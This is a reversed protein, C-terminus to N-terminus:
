RCKWADERGGTSVIVSDAIRGCISALVGLRWRLFPACEHMAEPDPSMASACETLGKMVRMLSRYRHGPDHRSTISGDRGTRYAYHNLGSAVTTGARTLLYPTWLEDEHIIGEAFRLGLGLLLRRRVMYCPAMPAYTAHEFMEKLFAAGTSYTGPTVPRGWYWMGGSPDVCILNGTVIDADTKLAVDLMGDVNEADVADDSDVFLIYEGRAEDLGRNRAASLGANRQRVSRFRSDSDTHERIIRPTDDSSGDDVIVCEMDSASAAISSLCDELWPATNYAAVIYSLAPAHM